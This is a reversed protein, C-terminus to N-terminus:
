KKVNFRDIKKVNILSLFLLSKFKKRNKKLLFSMKKYEEDVNRFM